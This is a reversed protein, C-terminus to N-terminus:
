LYQKCLNKFYSNKGKSSVSSDYKKNSVEIILLYDKAFHKLLSRLPEQLDQAARFENIILVERYLMYSM